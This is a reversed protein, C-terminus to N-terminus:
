DHAITRTEYMEQATVRQAPTMVFHSNWGSYSLLYYLMEDVFTQKKIVNGVAQVYFWQTTDGANKSILDFAKPTEKKLMAGFASRRVCPNPHNTLEYLEDVTACNFITDYANPLYTSLQKNNFVPLKQELLLVENRIKGPQFTSQAFSAGTLLILLLSSAIKM